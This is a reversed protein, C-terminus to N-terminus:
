DDPIEPEVPDDPIPPDEALLIAPGRFVRCRSDRACTETGVVVSCTASQCRGLHRPGNHVLQPCGCVCMPGWPPPAAVAARRAVAVEGRGRRAM